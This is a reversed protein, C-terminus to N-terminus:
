LSPRIEEIMYAEIVDGRKLDSYNELGIGCEMGQPVERVDEKFRRLSAMKGQHVEVNDRLLRVLAGRQMKGETVAVGAVVGIKPVTFLDRVEARGIVNEKLTAPLLGAQAKRIDETLEYIIKYSRVDVGLVQAAKKANTDPRVNFGVLMAKSTAALNIDTETIAGVGHHIVSVGVKPTSLKEVANRVAEASGQVDAKLLVKLDLKEAGQLREYFDELSLAATEGQRSKQQETKRHEIILRAEKENQVVHFSEGAM